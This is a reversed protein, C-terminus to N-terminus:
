KLSAPCSFASIPRMGASIAPRRRGAPDRGETSLHVTQWSTKQEQQKARGGHAVTERVETVKTGKQKPSGQGGSRM